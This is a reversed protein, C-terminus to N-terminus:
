ILMLILGISILLARNKSISLKQLQSTRLGHSNIMTSFDNKIELYCGSGHTSINTVEVGSINKGHPQSVTM